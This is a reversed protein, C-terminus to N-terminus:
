QCEMCSEEKWCGSVRMRFRDHVRCSWFFFGLNELFRISLFRDIFSLFRNPVPFFTFYFVGSSLQGMSYWKYTWENPDLKRIYPNKTQMFQCQFSTMRMAWLCFFISVTDTRIHACERALWVIMWIRIIGFQIPRWCLVWERVVCLVCFLYIISVGCTFQGITKKNRPHSHSYRKREVFHRIGSNASSLDVVMSTRFASAKKKTWQTM